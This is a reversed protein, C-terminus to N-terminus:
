HKYRFEKTNILAWALDNYKQANAMGKAKMYEVATDFENKTPRRSLINLYLSNIIKNRDWKLNKALNKLRWGGEIKDQIHSSNLMHMRQSDTPDTIRESSLGTDRSPRGYMELFKSTMSGDALAITRNEAPIFTFPEPIPSQYSETTGTLMCLADILVEAEMQRVKYVAFLQETKENDSQPISSQQYTRSNMILKLLRQIDYGSRVFEDELYVLLEPNSPLNDSRIDDPEDIIGTGMTWAWIRNVINKAFWPNDETILWDAFVVRPDKDAPITVSKGDPFVAKLPEVNTMDFYIIEEKWEATGKYGVKSFFMQLENRKEESWNEFRAGMLNLAVAAAISSPEKGQIARYFNVPPDRFNSGSTTLLQRAFQDYSVNDRISEFIWRHYAQVANPWLNIPFESKVRLLDSWKMAMYYAYEERNFLSAILRSRKNSKNDAIFDTVQKSTPITGTLDLYVRRIFIEDSCLNAPKINNLDLKNKVLVDIKNYPKFDTKIEYISDEASALNGQSYVSPVYIVAMIIALLFCIKFYEISHLQNNM